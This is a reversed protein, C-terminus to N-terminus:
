PINVFWNSVRMSINNNIKIEGREQSVGRGRGKGKDRGRGKGTRGM